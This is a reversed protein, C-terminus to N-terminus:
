RDPADHGAWGQTGILPVFRVAGLDEHEFREEDIRRIRRLRQHDDGADVPVVLRGGIALQACLAPPPEPAGAAVLIADYPGEGPWGTSGDGVHVAVNDYGLAALRERAEDALSAHREIAVVRGALRSLVAAAYGSGAGVELVRDGPEIEAAQAMLAVIYPQSITQGAGIPLPSDEYALAEMGAGVFRERPVTRMAALVRPDRIGRGALQVEIMRERAATFDAAM